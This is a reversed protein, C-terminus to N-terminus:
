LKLSSGYKERLIEAVKVMNKLAPITEEWGRTKLGCDPNIWVLNKDIVKVTREAIELMEDVSPIRPSHIDYLGIGIGHDYNFDEFAQIIEGKSRSAEISIVDADMQYIWEIIENFESYCMHTHIQTTKKVTHNTLRFAKVAWRLYDEQKRKKLPLGERFAPEDIQIIKIGAKELDLVEEKLALAIQFAIEKKPIDKRYFSWNLITVPGTLMGKVPKNTLSQAYVIEKVTMAEPRSVDGYIIPPRVCRTGYSQVWGNKTFAFGGMKEGFFEVMDTREFEGHVFVDLGIEEQIKVAKKIQDKIFEEYEAETIEGRRFKARVQRVEKTQPFSGITTTPFKPLGLLEMQSRYRVRFDDERKIEVNEIEKVAKKVDENVFISRIEELNQDPVEKGENIIEKLIRLEDIRESAFSLMKLLNKDLFGKESETTVPLHFLPSGNSLILRDESVYRGITELQDLVKRYDTKWPDRGSVVGAILKKDGPFGYRKLNELNEDNVVFDLGIGTVPLSFVIKEFNDLSEYYTHLHIETKDIGDTLIRYAELLTDVDQETIDLVLAPEDLQVAKVGESQLEKLIENYVKALSLVMPRFKKSESSRVMNMLLSGEQREYVKGLYIYTFPGTIVPKTEIGREKAWRYSDLPRNKILRFNGTLEPVIYHYNTDFWKTMECAIANESGRAMAFYRDTDDQINRFRDPIVDVMTSIDLIFDYVSFDNSPVLDLDGKKLFEFREENVKELGTYMEDKTIEGKWYGEVYKKLERNKGIKPFGFATTKIGM